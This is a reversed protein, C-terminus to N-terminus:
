TNISVEFLSNWVCKELSVLIQLGEGFVVSIKTYIEKTGFNPNSFFNFLHTVKVIPFIM